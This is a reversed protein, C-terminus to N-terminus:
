RAGMVATNMRLLAEFLLYLFAPLTTLAESPMLKTWTRPHSRAQTM